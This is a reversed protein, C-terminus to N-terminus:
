QRGSEVLERYEPRLDFGVAMKCSVCEYRDYVPKDKFMQTGVFEFVRKENCRPCEETRAETIM